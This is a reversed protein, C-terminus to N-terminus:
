FTDLWEQLKKELSATLIKEFISLSIDFYHYGEWWKGNRLKHGDNVAAAYVVNTGIELSLGGNSLKFICDSDGRGFSNLLRRTDVVKLRIIEDQVIGLFEMGAAELWLDYHKKLDGSVASKLKDTFEKFGHIDVKIIKTM